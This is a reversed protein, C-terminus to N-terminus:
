TTTKVSMIRAARARVLSARSGLVMQWQALAATRAINVTTAVTRINRVLTFMTLASM